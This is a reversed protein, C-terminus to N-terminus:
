ELGMAKMNRYSVALCEFPDADYCCDQEVLYYEVGSEKAAKLIEPWNLNGEGIPTYVQERLPKIGMDKVHLVPIRGRCRRIWWAPDGGGAQVWYTDLEANLVSAPATDLLTELWTKKGIKVFEMNHNHYSFDIGAKNLKEAIPGLEDVFKKLGDATFYDHPVGGVASHRCGWLKHEEIVADLEDKFRQWGMHTIAVTLGNDKVLRGVEKPDVKGFSSIQIVEYGIKRIKKFTEAVGEITKTSERVTYLQAGLVKKGM